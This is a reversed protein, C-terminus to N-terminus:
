KGSFNLPVNLKVSFNRGMNFVGNRGTLNNEATYKLRSLHNQYAQDTINNVSVNLQFIIKNKSKFDAGAGANLLSYGATATETGYAEFPNNQNFVNDLEMKFYLNNLKKGSKLFDTRLESILRPAPMLPMNSVAELPQNWKGRVYSFTNEFHLWDLPHPHIDLTAEIGYLNANRQSFKFAQLLEGNLNVISDGGAKASLKHYFIFDNVANNFVAMNLSFHEYDLNMGLDFQFSTESKLNLDGYEYRNTGEHAGNSALESLSPSRFGRAMNAKFSINKELEYSLGVSGSINSFSKNFAAFKMVSGEKFDHSNISRRDFRLGGSVTTKKTSHQTYVFLGADTLGYEPMIVEEGKNSNNQFMGNLGLTTRWSKKEALMWHINYNATKLDFSLAEEQSDLPNGFETRQNQQVGLNIKLRNKGISLNNESIIKTHKVNQKPIFLERSDLDSEKAIRELVTGSYLIFRGTANDREGEMMGIHQNFRSFILHSYGWSKNLGIYGGFNKENFGSNLVKGDFKNSYSGASKTTGYANWSFGNKNGAINANLAFLNNNSQFNSQINGTVQGDPVPVNTVINIVGALADSGYMLSAPGKVIEVKNISLEDIEIGHEDGWQQGEQRLGDNIVVVRNSGLGRIVPKSIAPGTSLQSIGPKHSLADIINTASTQMLEAKKIVIVAAPSKRISMAHSVGTVTVGENEVVSPILQFNMEEDQHLDIHAVISTFGSYSIEVLHHGFPINKIEFHGNLDSVAGIKADQIYISAAVLSEGSKSNSIKGSLTFAEAKSGKKLNIASEKQETTKSQANTTQFGFVFLALLLINKKMKYKSVM